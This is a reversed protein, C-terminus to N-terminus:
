KLGEMVNRVSAKFEELSSENIIMIDALALTKALGWGIEREDRQIFEEDNKPADERGREVLRKYRTAPSAFIGVITVDPTIGKFAKVEDMSRCGDVMFIDGYMKEKSRRAWIDFGYREREINAFQGTSLDKDGENRKFYYERVIDGMRVFPIGSDGAATLFEEKGAGPMGATIILRM